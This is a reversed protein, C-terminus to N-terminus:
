GLIQSTLMLSVANNANQRASKSLPQPSFVVVSGLLTVGGVTLLGNCVPPVFVLTCWSLASQGAATTCVGCGAAFNTSIVDDPTM